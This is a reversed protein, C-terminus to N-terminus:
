VMPFSCRFVDSGIFITIQCKISPRLNFFFFQVLTEVILMSKLNVVFPATVLIAALTRCYLHPHSDSPIQWEIHWPYAAYLSSRNERGDCTMLHTPRHTATIICKVQDVVEQLNEVLDQNTAALTRHRMMLSSLMSDNVELYDSLLHSLSHSPLVLDCFTVLTFTSSANNKCCNWLKGM